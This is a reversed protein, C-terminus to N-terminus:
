SRAPARPADAKAADAAEAVPKYAQPKLTEAKTTDVKPGGGQEPVLGSIRGRRRSAPNATGGDGRRGCQIRQCRRGPASPDPKV